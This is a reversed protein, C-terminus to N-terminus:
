TKQLGELAEKVQDLVGQAGQGTLLPVANIVPVKVTAPVQTTSVVVDADTHRIVDMVKGQLIQVDQLHPFAMLYSRIKNAVVTSSAIGTGCIVLVKKKAAM